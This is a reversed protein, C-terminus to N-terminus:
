QNFCLRVNGVYAVPALAVFLNVKDALSPNITFGAFASLSPWYLMIHFHLNYKLQYRPINGTFPGHLVIQTRWYCGPYLWDWSSYWVEGTSLRKLTLKLSWIRYACWTTLLSTRNNAYTIILFVFDKAFLQVYGFNLIRLAINTTFWAWVMVATTAQLLQLSTM